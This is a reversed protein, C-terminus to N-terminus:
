CFRILSIEGDHSVSIVWSLTIDFLDIDDSCPYWLYRFYKDVDDLNLEDIEDFRYFNIFIKSSTAINLDGLLSRFSFSKEDADYGECLKSKSALIQVLQLKDVKESLILLNKLKLRVGEMEEGGLSRYKPFEKNPYANIFGEINRKEM